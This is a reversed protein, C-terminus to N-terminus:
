RHIGEIRHEIVKVGGGDDGADIGIDGVPRIRHQLLYQSLCSDHALCRIADIIDGTSWEKIEPAEPGLLPDGSQRSVLLDVRDEPKDPVPMNADVSKGM